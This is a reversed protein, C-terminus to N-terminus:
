SPVIVRDGPQIIASGNVQQLRDVLPRVDGSPQIRRAISWLTDGAQVQITRGSTASAPAAPAPALAAFAGRGVAVTLLLVTFVTLFAILAVRLPFVPPAPRVTGRGGQILRLEPRVPRHVHPAPHTQVIAAM